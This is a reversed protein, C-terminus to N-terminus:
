ARAETKRPMELQVETGEGAATRLRVAGGHRTMRGRISGALGHRDEPVTDPDFGKGRDRVFVTVKEPEVEAYVSVEAVGAHKAANVIAERAAQVLPILGDELECDGVVVQPVAIACAQASTSSSKAIAV